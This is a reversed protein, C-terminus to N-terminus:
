LFISIASQTPLVQLGARERGAEEGSEGLSVGPRACGEM